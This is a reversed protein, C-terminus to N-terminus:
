EDVIDARIPALVARIHECDTRIICFAMNTKYLEKRVRTSTRRSGKRLPRCHLHLRDELRALHLHQALLHTRKWLVGLHIPILYSSKM